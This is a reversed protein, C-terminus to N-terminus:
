LVFSRYSAFNLKKRYTNEINHRNEKFSVKNVIKGNRIRYKSTVGIEEDNRKYGKRIYALALQKRANNSARRAKTSKKLISPLQKPGMIISSPTGDCEVSKNRILALRLAERPNWGIVISEMALIFNNKSISTQIFQTDNFQLTQPPLHVPLARGWQCQKEFPFCLTPPPCHRAHEQM